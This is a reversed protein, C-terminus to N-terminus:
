KRKSLEIGHCDTGGTMILNLDIAIKKVKEVNCFKIIKRHGIYLYYVEVGDLGLDVLEKVMNYLNVNWCSAPHALVAIGGAQKITEIVEKARRETLFRVVDLRRGRLTASCLNQLDNNYIDVGYGLIHLFNSKYWCDFEIGTIIDLDDLASLDIQKYADMTNHDTISIIKLNDKRANEVVEVPTLTGDSCTTHVHLNVKSFFDTEDVTKILNIADNSILLM